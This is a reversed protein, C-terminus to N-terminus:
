CVINVIKGPVVIVKKPTTGALQKITQENAMATEEVEEKPMDAPLELTFRLKGNFSIPYKVSSEILFAENCIPFEADCVTGENGLVLYLEESIHPAFPTLLITLIYCIM